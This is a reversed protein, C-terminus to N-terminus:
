EESGEANLMPDNALWALKEVAHPLDAHWSIHKGDCLVQWDGLEDQRIIYEM